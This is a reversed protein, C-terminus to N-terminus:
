VTRYPVETFKVSADFGNQLLLDEAAVQSLRPQRCPGILVETLPLPKKLRLPIHRSMMSQRQVFKMGKQDDARRHYILRWEKEDRFSPSKICPAFSVVRPLWYGCFEETWAKVTPAKNKGELGLFFNETWVLMDDFITTHNLPDYEVQVLSMQPQTTGDPMSIFTAEYLKLPDFQLAYGGEGGSYARWQSLHDRQESFCVVFVPSIEPGPDSLADLIWILVPDIARDHPHM